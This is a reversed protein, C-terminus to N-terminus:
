NEIERSISGVVWEVEGEVVIIFKQLKYLFGVTLVLLILFISSRRFLLRNGLVIWILFINSFRLFPFFFIDLERVLYTNLVMPGIFKRM